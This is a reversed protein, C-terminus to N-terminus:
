IQGNRRQHDKRNWSGQIWRLMGKAGTLGFEVTIPDVDVSTIQKLRQSDSGAAEDAIHARTWGGEVSKLYATPEHGDVRLEFHGAAYSSRTLM